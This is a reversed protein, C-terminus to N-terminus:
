FVYGISNALSLSAAATTTIAAFSLVNFLGDRPSVGFPSNSLGKM